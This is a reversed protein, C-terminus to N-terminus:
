KSIFRNKINSKWNKLKALSHNESYTGIFILSFGIGVCLGKIAEPLLNFQNGLMFIVVFLFGWKIYKNNKMDLKGGGCLIDIIYQIQLNYWWLLCVLIPKMKM